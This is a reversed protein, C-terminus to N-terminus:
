DPRVERMAAALQTFHGEAQELEVWPALTPPKRAHRVIRATEVTESEADGVTLVLLEYAGPLDHVNVGAPPESSAAWANTLLAYRIAGSRRLYERVFTTIQSSPLDLALGVVTIQGDPAQTFLMPLWDNDPEAFGRGTREVMRKVKAGFRDLM